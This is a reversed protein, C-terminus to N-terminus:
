CNFLIVNLVIMAFTIRAIMMVATVYAPRLRKPRTQQFKPFLSIKKRTEVTDIEATAKPKLHTASRNHHALEVLHGPMGAPSEGLVAGCLAALPAVLRM